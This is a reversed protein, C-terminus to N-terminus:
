DGLLVKLKPWDGGIQGLEADLQDLLRRHKVVSAVLSDHRTVDFKVEQITRLSEELKIYAVALDGVVDLYRREMPRRPTDPQFDRPNMGRGIWVKSGVDPDDRDNAEKRERADQLATWNEESAVFVDAREPTLIVAGGERVKNIADAFVSGPETQRLVWARYLVGAWRESTGIDKSWQRRTGGTTVQEWTLEALRWQDAESRKVLTRAETVADAYTMARYDVAGRPLRIWFSDAM